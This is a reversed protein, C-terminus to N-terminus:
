CIVHLKALAQVDGILPLSIDFSIVRESVDERGLEGLIKEEGDGSHALFSLLLDM